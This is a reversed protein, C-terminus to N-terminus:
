WYMVKENERRSNIIRIIIVQSVIILPIYITVILLNFGLQIDYVREYIALFLVIVIDVISIVSFFRIFFIWIKSKVNLVILSSLALLASLTDGFVIFNKLYSPFMLGVQGPLYLALPIYRFINIILLFSLIEKVNIESIRPILYIKALTIFTIFSFIIIVSLTILNEM